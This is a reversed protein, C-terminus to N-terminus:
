LTLAAYAGGCASLLDDPALEMQLGIRGGSVLIRARGRASEDLFAPFPKKMGVATCGGRVYGTLGFLEAVHVMAVSKVGAAKAAKKLDLEAGVPLIFVFHGGGGATVLTKYVEEPPRGVLRAVEEGPLATDGHPYERVAYAIKKADLIRMANTKQLKKAM